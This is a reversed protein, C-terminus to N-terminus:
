HQQQQQRQGKTCEDHEKAGRDSECTAKRAWVDRKKPAGAKAEYLTHTHLLM